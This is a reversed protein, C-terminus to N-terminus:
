LNIYFALQCHADVGEFLPSRVYLGFQASTRTITVKEAACSLISMNIHGLGKLREAQYVLVFVLAFCHLDLHFM